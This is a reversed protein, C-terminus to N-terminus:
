RLAEEISFSKQIIVMSLANWYIQHVTQASIENGSFFHAIQSLKSVYSQYLLILGKSIIFLMLPYTRIFRKKSSTGSLIMTPPLGSFAILCM